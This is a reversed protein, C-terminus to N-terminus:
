NMKEVSSGVIDKIQYTEPYSTQNLLRVCYEGLMSLILIIIGNLFSLLVILSTWGPVPVGGVLHEGIFYLGLIFSLLAIIMGM